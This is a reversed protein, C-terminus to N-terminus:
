QVIESEKLYYNDDFITFTHRYMVGNKRIIENDLEPVELINPNTCYDTDYYKSCIDKNDIDILLFYEYIVIKDKYKYAKDILSYKRKNDLYPEHMCYYNKGDNKCDYGYYKFNNYEFERDLNFYEKTKKAFLENSIIMINCTDNSIFSINSISCTIKVPRVKQIKYDDEDLNLLIYKMISDNDLKDVKLSPKRLILNSNILSILNTVTSDNVDLEEKTLDDNKITVINSLFCCTVILVVIILTLIITKKIDNIM